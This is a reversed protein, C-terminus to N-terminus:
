LPKNPVTVGIGRIDRRQDAAGLHTYRLRTGDIASQALRVSDAEARDFLQTRKGFGGFDDTGAEISRIERRSRGRVIALGSQAVLEAEQDTLVVKIGSEHLSIGRVEAPGLCEFFGASIQNFGEDGLERPQSLPDPHM